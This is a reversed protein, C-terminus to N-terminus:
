SVKCLTGLSTPSPSFSTMHRHFRIGCRGSLFEAIRRSGDGRLDSSMGCQDLEHGAIHTIADSPILGTQAHIDLRYVVCRVGLMSSTGM